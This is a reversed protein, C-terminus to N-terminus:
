VDGGPGAISPTEQHTEQLEGDSTDGTVVPRAIDSPDAISPTEQHTEQLEGDSTDSTLVPRGDDAPSVISPTEQHIEKLEGDGTDGSVMSRANDGPSAILAAEKFDGDIIKDSVRRLLPGLGERYFAIQALVDNRSAIARAHLRDLREYYDIGTQMAKAHDAAEPEQELIRLVEMNKEEIAAEYEDVWDSMTTPEDDQGAAEVQDKDDAAAAPNAEEPNKAEKDKAKAEKAEKAEKDKKAQERERELGSQLAREKICAERRLREVEKERHREHEREIAMRKHASYRMALWNADTLEKVQLQEIVDRPKIIEIFGIMINYYENLSESSLVPTSAGFLKKIQRLTQATSNESRM